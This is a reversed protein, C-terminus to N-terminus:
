EQERFRAVWKYGTKRSVGYEQCLNGFDVSGSLSKLVFEQRLNVAEAERWPM